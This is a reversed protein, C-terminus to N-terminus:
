YKQGNYNFSWCVLVKVQNHPDKKARSLFRVYVQLLGSESEKGKAISTSVHSAQRLECKMQMRAWLQPRHLKNKAVGVGLPRELKAYAMLKNCNLRLRM